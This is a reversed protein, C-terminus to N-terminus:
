QNAVFDMVLDNSLSVVQAPDNFRHRKASVSVVYNQGAPLDPVNYYGFSGTVVTIPQLLAGGTIVLMANAIPRGNTETVRGSISATAATVPLPAFTVNRFVTNAAATALLTPAGPVLEGSRTKKDGVPTPRANYGSTDTYVSLTNANTLTSTGYITVTPVPVNTHIAALGRIGPTVTGNLVWTGAVLSYKQVGGGAADDGVYITDVGAVAPTLDAFFFPYPSTGAVGTLNTITQGTTTPLGTGVTGIRLAGSASSVYLQGDFINISRLNTTGNAVITGAGSGGFTTYVVGTNSGSLWIDTGNSSVIGRPNGASFSTTTTNTSVIGDKGVRAIVRLVVTTTTAAVTATGVAADYGFVFIYRGDASRTMLCESTASGSLTFMQNPGDDVTPMAISQVLAGATTYEDLFVPFASGSLAGGGVAGIRCVVLNGATFAAALSTGALCMM